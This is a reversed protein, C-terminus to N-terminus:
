TYTLVLDLSLINPNIEDLKILPGLWVRDECRIPSEVVKHNDGEKVSTCLFPSLQEDTVEEGM